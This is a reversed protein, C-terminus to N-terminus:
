EIIYPNGPTGDGKTAKTGSKLVISPRVGLSVGVNTNNYLIYGKDDTNTRDIGIPRGGLGYSSGSSYASHTAYTNYNTNGAGYSSYTENTNGTVTKYSSCILEGKNADGTVSSCYHFSIISFSESSTYTTSAGQHSFAGILYDNSYLKSEFFSNKKGGTYDYLYGNGDVVFVHSNYKAYTTNKLAVGSPTMTWYNSGTYLYSKTTAQYSDAIMGAMAVEDATILGIPNTLYGNTGTKKTVTYSSSTSSCATPTPMKNDVLRGYAGYLILNGVTNYIEMDSCWVEDELKSTYDSLYKDYWTDIVTKITSSVTSSTMYSSTTTTTGNFASSGITAATGGDRLTCKNGSAVGNYILKTGGAGTTRVIKWCFGAFVVNNDDVDGRYYYIPNDDKNTNQWIYLGKGNTDSSSKSFDIGTESAVYPSPENDLYAQKGAIGLISAEKSEGNLVKVKGNVTLEKRIYSYGIGMGIVLLLSLAILSYLKFNIHTTRKKLNFNM